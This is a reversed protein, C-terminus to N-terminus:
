KEERSAVLQRGYDDTIDALYTGVIRWNNENVLRITLGGKSFKAQAIKNGRYRPCTGPKNIEKALRRQYISSSEDLLHKM